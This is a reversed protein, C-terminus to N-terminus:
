LRPITGRLKGACTKYKRTAKLVAGDTTVATVRVAYNGKALGRLDVVARFRKRNLYSAGIQTVKIRRTTFVYVPVRRGNVAVIALSYRVGRFQRVKIPFARRSTCRRNSPLPLAQTGTPTATGSPQPQQQQGGTVGTPSFVTLHSFTATGGAAVTFPWSIGAANDVAIGCQCTSPLMTHAGIARWFNSFTDELYTSGSTLPVWQEIRAPPTNNPNRACGPGKNSSEVFGAGVDSEQLYCDGARYVIGSQLAPGTNRVSVDTRYYEQGTVYSDVETVRLGTTGLDYVTTLECPSTTTGAGAVDSQSVPTFPTSAGIGSAASSDHAAFNPAFLTAGTFVLTGCDGPTSSSPFLELRADGQYGIQCGGENGVSVSTLPGSSTIAKFPVAAPATAALALGAVACAVLTGLLRAM